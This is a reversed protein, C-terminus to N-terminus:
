YTRDWTSKQKTTNDSREPRDREVRPDLLTKYYSTTEVATRKPGLRDMPNFAERTRNCLYDYLLLQMSSLFFILDSREDFNVM